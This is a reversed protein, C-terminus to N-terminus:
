SCSGSYTSSLPSGEGTSSTAGGAGIALFDRGDSDSRVMSLKDWSGDDGAPLDLRLDLKKLASLEIGGGIRGAEANPPLRRGVVLSPVGCAVGAVGRRNPPPVCRPDIVAGPLLLTLAATAGSETDVGLLAGTDLNDEANLFCGRAGICFRWAVGLARGNDFLLVISALVGFARGENTPANLSLTVGGAVTATGTVGDGLTGFGNVLAVGSVVRFTELEDDARRSCIAFAFAARRASGASGAVSVGSFFALEDEASLSWIAM